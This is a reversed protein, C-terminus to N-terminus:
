PWAENLTVANMEVRDPVPSHEARIRAIDENGFLTIDKRIDYSRLVRAFGYHEYVLARHASTLIDRQNQFFRVTRCENAGL